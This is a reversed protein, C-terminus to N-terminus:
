RAGLATQLAAVLESNSYPKGIVPWQRFAEPVGEPGYGTAFIMPLGREAIRKAVRDVREGQLNLDLVAIDFAAHAALYVADEIAEATATVIGGMEEIVEVLVLAIVTEDEVVFFRKGALDVM